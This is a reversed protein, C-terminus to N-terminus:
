QLGPIHGSSLQLLFLHPFHKRHNVLSMLVSGSVISTMPSKLALTSTPAVHLRDVNVSTMPGCPYQVSSHLLLIVLSCASCNEACTDLLNLTKSATHSSFVGSSSHFFVLHTHVPNLTGSSVYYTMESVLSTRSHIYFIFRCSCDLSGFFSM